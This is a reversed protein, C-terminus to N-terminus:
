GYCSLEIGYAKAEVCDVMEDNDRFIGGKIGLNLQNFV